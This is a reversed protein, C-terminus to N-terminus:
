KGRAAEHAALAKLIAQCERITLTIEVHYDPNWDEDLPNDIRRKIEEAAPKLAEGCKSAAEREPQMALDIKYADLVKEEYTDFPGVIAHIAEMAAKSPESM